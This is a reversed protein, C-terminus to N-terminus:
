LAVSKQYELVMMRHEKMEWPLIIEIEDDNDDNDDNVYEKFLEELCCGFEERSERTWELDDQKEIYEIFDNVNQKLSWNHYILNEKVLTYIFKAESLKM